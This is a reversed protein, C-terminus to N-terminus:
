VRYMAAALLCGTCEGERGRVARMGGRAWERWVCRQRCKARHLALAEEASDLMATADQRPAPACSALPAAESPASASSGSGGSGSARRGMKLAGKLAKFLKSKGARPKKEPTHEPTHQQCCGPEASLASDGAHEHWGNSSVTQPPPHPPQAAAADTADTIVTVGGGPMGAASEMAEALDLTIIGVKIGAADRGTVRV